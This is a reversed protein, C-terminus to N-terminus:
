MQPVEIGGGGMMPPMGQPPGHIQTMQAQRKMAELRNQWREVNRKANPYGMIEKEQWYSLMTEPDNRPGYAGIKLDTRLDELLFATNNGHMGTEDVSFLYQDDYYWNGYEDQELFDYRNFVQQIQNGNYGTSTYTRPEDAYALMFKFMTEYLDAYAANKMVQKSRIRGAAQAIQAEKARGSQATRDPKGQFSDTIGMVSKAMEYMQMVLAVEAEYDFNLSIPKIMEMQVPTEVDIPVVDEDSLNMRLDSPKTIYSGAKLVKKTVKSLIRNISDQFDAIAECDSSGLFQNTSSINKRILLPFSRPYYYPIKTPEMKVRQRTEMRPTDGIINGADDFVYDFLPLGTMMDIAPVQYDEYVYEGYEDRVPSMAPIVSGDSRIVDEALIEYDRPRKEWEKSGCTCENEGQPQTKGCAACVKDKRAEFDDDDILETSGAWSYCGLGGKKNKYYCVVQTVLDEATADASRPDVSDGQVDKGYREKIRAKTDEFTLFLHDMNKTLYVAEQPIMQKADMLRVSIDGVTDHTKISNDWEVLFGSGGMIKSTREDEDNIYEMPLRDIQNRIMDEIVKALRISKETPRQPVVRPQPIKSDIQSEILEKTINWVVSVPKGPGQDHAGDYRKAYGKFADLSDAYASRAQEYKEQWERLRENDYDRLSEGGM